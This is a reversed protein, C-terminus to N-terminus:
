GQVSRPLSVQQTPTAAPLLKSTRPCRPHPANKHLEEIIAHRAAVAAAIAFIGWGGFFMAGLIKALIILVAFLEAIVGIARGIINDQSYAKEDPEQRNILLIIPFIGIFAGFSVGVIALTMVFM